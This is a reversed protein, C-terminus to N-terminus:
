MNTGTDHVRRLTFTFDAYSGLPGDPRVKDWNRYCSTVLLIELGGGGPHSALGLTASKVIIAASNTIFMSRYMQCDITIKLGDADQFNPVLFISRM